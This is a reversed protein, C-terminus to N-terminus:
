LSRGLPLFMHICSHLVHCSRCSPGASQGCIQALTKAGPGQQLKAQVGNLLDWGSLERLDALVRGPGARLHEDREQGIAIGNTNVIGPIDLPGAPGIARNAIDARADARLPPGKPTKAAIVAIDNPGGKDVDHFLRPCKVEFGAFRVVHTVLPKFRFQDAFEAFRGDPPQIDCGEQVPCVRILPNVRWCWAAAWQRSM